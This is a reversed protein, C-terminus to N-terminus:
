KGKFSKVIGEFKEKYDPYRKKSASCEILFFNDGIIVMYILQNKFIGVTEFESEIWKAKKGNLTAVGERIIKFENEQEPYYDTVYTKFCKDLSLGDTSERSITAWAWAKVDSNDDPAIIDTTSQMGRITWDSPYKFEYLDNKFVKTQGASNCCVLLCLFFIPAIKM